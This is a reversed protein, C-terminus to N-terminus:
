RAGGPVPPIVPPAFWGLSRLAAGAARDADVYPDWRDPEGVADLVIGPRFGLAALLGLLEVATPQRRGGVWASLTGPEYGISLAIQRVSRGAARRSALAADLVRRVEGAATEYRADDAPGHRLRRSM